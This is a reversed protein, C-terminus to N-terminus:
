NGPLAVGHFPTRPPYNWSHADQERTKWTEREEDRETRTVTHPSISTGGGGWCKMNKKIKAQCRIDKRLGPTTLCCLIGFEKIKAGIVPKWKERMSVRQPHIILADIYSSRAGREVGEGVWGRDLGWVRREGGEKGDSLKWKRRFSMTNTPTYPSTLSGHM